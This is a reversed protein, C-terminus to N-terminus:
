IGGAGICMYCGMDDVDGGSHHMTLVSSDENEHRWGFDMTWKLTWEQCQVKHPNQCTYISVVITDCLITESGQFDKTSWRNM